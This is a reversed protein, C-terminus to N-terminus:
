EQMLTSDAFLSLCDSDEAEEKNLNEEDVLFQNEMSSRNMESVTSECLQVNQLSDCVKENIIRCTKIEHKGEKLYKSTNEVNENYSISTFNRNLKRKKVNNNNDDNQDTVTCKKNTLNTNKYSNKKATRTIDDKEEIIKPSTITHLLVINENESRENLFLNTKSLDQITELDVVETIRDYNIDENSNEIRRQLDMKLLSESNLNEKQSNSLNNTFDYSNSINNQISQQELIFNQKENALLIPNSGKDSVKELCIKFRKDNQGAKIIKDVSM